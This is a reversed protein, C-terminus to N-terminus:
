SETVKRARRASKGTLKVGCKFRAQMSRISAYQGDKKGGSKVKERKKWGKKRRKKDKETL